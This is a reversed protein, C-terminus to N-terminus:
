VSRPVPLYTNLSRRTHMRAALTFQRDSYGYAIHLDSCLCVLVDAIRCTLLLTRHWILRGTSLLHPGTAPKAM